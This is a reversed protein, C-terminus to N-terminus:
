FSPPTQAGVLLARLSRLYREEEELLLAQKDEPPLQSQVITSTNQAHLREIDAMVQDRTPPQPQRALRQAEERERQRQAARYRRMQARRTLVGATGSALRGVGCAALVVADVAAVAGLLAVAVDPMSSAAFIGVVILGGALTPDENYTSRYSRWLMSTLM